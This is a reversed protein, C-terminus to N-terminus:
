SSKSVLSGLRALETDEPYEGHAVNVIHILRDQKVAERLVNQWITTASGQLDISTRVVEADSAVRAITDPDDYLRVLVKRLETVDSQRVASSSPLAAAGAASLLTRLDELFESARGYEPLTRDRLMRRLAKILDPLGQASARIRSLHALASAVQEERNIIERTLVRCLLRALRSADKWKDDPRRLSEPSEDQARGGSKEYYALGFDGLKFGHRGDKKWVLINRPHIDGHWHDRSHVALLAAGVDVALWVAYWARDQDTDTDKLLAELSGLACHEMVYAPYRSLPDVIRYVRVVGDINEQELRECLRKNRKAGEIFARKKEGSSDDRLQFVKVAVVGEPGEALHVRGYGGQGLYDGLRYDGVDKGHDPPGDAISSSWQALIKDVIRRVPGMLQAHAADGQEKWFGAIKDRKDKASAGPTLGRVLAVLAVSVVEAADIPDGPQTTAPPAGSPRANEAALSPPTSPRMFEDLANIGWCRALRDYIETWREAIQTDDSSERTDDRRALANRWRKIADRNYHRVFESRSEKQALCPVVYFKEILEKQREDRLRGALVALAGTDVGARTMRACLLLTSEPFLKFIPKIASIYHWVPSLLSTMSHERYRELNETLVDLLWLIQEVGGPFIQEMLWRDVPKGARLRLVGVNRVLIGIARLAENNVLRDEDRLCDNIASVLADRIPHDPGREIAMHRLVDIRLLAKTATMRIRGTHGAPRSAARVIQKRLVEVAALVRPHRLELSARAAGRSDYEVELLIENPSRDLLGESLSKLVIKIQDRDEPVDAHLGGLIEEAKKIIASKITDPHDKDDDGGERRWPEHEHLRLYLLYSRLAGGRLHVVESIERKRREKRAAPDDPFFHAGYATDDHLALLRDWMGVPLESGVRPTRHRERSNRAYCIVGKVIQGGAGGAVFENTRDRVVLCTLPSPLAIRDFRLGRFYYNGAESLRADAPQWSRLEYFCVRGSETAAVLVPADFLTTGQWLHVAVVPRDYAEGWIPWPECPTDRLEGAFTEGNSTGILCTHSPKGDPDRALTIAKIPHSLPLERTTKESATLGSDLWAFRVRGEDSGIVVLARADPLPEAAIARSPAKGPRQAPLEVHAGSSRSEAPPEPPPAGRGETSQVDFKWASGDHTIIGFLHEPTDLGALIVEGARTRLACFSYATVAQCTDGVLVDEEEKLELKLRVPEGRAHEVEFIELDLVSITPGRPTRSRPGEWSVVLRVVGLAGKKPERVVAAAHVRHDKRSIRDSIGGPEGREVKLPRGKQDLFWIAGDHTVAIVLKETAHLSQLEGAVVARWDLDYRRQYLQAQDILADLYKETKWNLEVLHRLGFDKKAFTDGDLVYKRVFRTWAILRGSDDPLRGAVEHLTKLHQEVQERFAHEDDTPTTRLVAMSIEILSTADRGSLEGVHRSVHRKVAPSGERTMRLIEEQLWVRDVKGEIRRAVVDLLLYRIADEDSATKQGELLLDWKKQEGAGPLEDWREEFVREAEERGPLDFLRLSHDRLAALVLCRAPERDLSMTDGVDGATRLRLAQVALVPSRLDIVHSPANPSAPKGAILKRVLDREVVRLRGNELGLIVLGRDAGLDLEQLCLVAARTIPLQMACPTRGHEWYLLGETTGLLVGDGFSMAATPLLSLPTVKSADHAPASILVRTIEGGRSVCIVHDKCRVMWQIWGAPPPPEGSTSELPRLTLTGRDADLVGLKGNRTAILIRDHDDREHDDRVLRAMATIGRMYRQGGDPEFGEGPGLQRRDGRWWSDLHIARRVETDLDHACLVHLYGLDTGVLLVSEGGFAGGHLHLMSRVGNPNPLERSPHERGRGGLDLRHVKGDKTGLWISKCPECSASSRVEYSLREVSFDEPSVPDFGQAHLLHGAM